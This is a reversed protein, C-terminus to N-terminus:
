YVISKIDNFHALTDCNDYYMYRVSLGSHTRFFTEPEKLLRKLVKFLEEHRRELDVFGRKGTGSQVFRDPNFRIFHLAEGYSQHLELMRRQECECVRSKHQDEDNEVVIVGFSTRFEFDPRKATCDYGPSTDRTFTLGKKLLFDNMANETRKVYDRHIRTCSFLCYGEKDCLFPLNCGLCIQEKNSSYEDPAHSDCYQFPFAGTESHTAMRKCKAEKCTTLKWHQTRDAHKACFARGTIHNGFQPSQKTCGSLHECRKNIVDKMDQTKHEKCHTPKKWIHGFSPQSDCSECLLNIVNKMEQTKHEKCHTPKNWVLGFSARTGCVLCLPNVVDLMDDTKHDKCRLPKYKKYGFTPQTDCMECRISVVNTMEDTKHHKCRSPREGHMGFSARTGCIVCMPNLVDQMDDTKHDKCRIPNGKIIGYIAQIDCLECKNSVVNKMDETKHTKCHTPTKWILGFSARTGCLLCLPNVVDLMDETKHEFCHTAKKGKTLGYTPQTQCGPQVCCAKKHLNVMTDRNMHTACHTRRGRPLGYTAYTYCGEAQCQQSNKKKVPEEEECSEIADAKRKRGRAM